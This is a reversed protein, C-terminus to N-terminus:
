RSGNKRQTTQAMMQQAMADFPLTLGAMLDARTYYNIATYPSMEISDDYGIKGVFRAMLWPQKHAELYRNKYCM